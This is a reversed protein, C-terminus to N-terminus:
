QYFDVLEEWLEDELVTDSVDSQTIIKEDSDNLIKSMKSFFIIIRNEFKQIDIDFKENYNLEFKLDESNYINIIIAEQNLNKANISKGVPLNVLSFLKNKKAEAEFNGLYNFVIDPSYRNYLQNEQEILTFSVQHQAARRLKDKISLTLDLPNDKYKIFQLIYHM